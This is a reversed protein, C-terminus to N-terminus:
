YIYIYIYISISISICVYMYVCVSVSFSPVCAAKRANPTHTHTHTHTRARARVHAHTCAGVCADVSTGAERRQRLYDGAGGGLTAKRPLGPRQRAAASAAFETLSDADRMESDRFRSSGANHALAGHHGDDAKGGGRGAHPEGRGRDAVALIIVVTINDMSGRRFSELCLKNAIASLNDPSWGTKAAETAVMHVVEQNSLM